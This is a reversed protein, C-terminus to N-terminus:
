GLQRGAEVQRKYQADEKVLRQGDQWRDRRVSLLPFLEWECVRYALGFAGM